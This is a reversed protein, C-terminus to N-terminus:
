APYAASAAVLDIGSMEIVQLTEVRVNKSPGSHSTSDAVM